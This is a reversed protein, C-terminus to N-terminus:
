VVKEFIEEQLEILIGLSIIMLAKLDAYSTNSNEESQLSILNSHDATTATELVFKGSFGDLPLRTSWHLNVFLRVSLIFRIQKRLQEAFTNM